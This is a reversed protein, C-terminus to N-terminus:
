QITLAGIPQKSQYTGWRDNDGLVIGAQASISFNWALDADPPAVILVWYKKGKTLQAACGFSVVQTNSDSFIPMNKVTGQCLRNAQPAGDPNTCPKNKCDKTLIVLSRNTGQVFSLGLTIKKTTGTKLSTIQNAPTWEGGCSSIGDCVAYGVYQQYGSSGINDYFPNAPPEIGKANPQQASPRIAVTTAGGNIHIIGSKNDQALVTMSGLVLLASCIAFRKNVTPEGNKFNILTTLSAWWTLSARTVPIIAESQPAVSPYEIFGLKTRAGACPLFNGPLNGRCYGPQTAWGEANKASPPGYRFLVSLGRGVVM